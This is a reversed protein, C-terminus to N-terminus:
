TSREAWKQPTLTKITLAHISNMEEKLAAQVLRHCALTSKDNFQQSVILIRYKAGCGDSEDEVELHSPSLQKNLKEEVIQQSVM